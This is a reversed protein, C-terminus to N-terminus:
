TSILLTGPMTSDASHAMKSVSATRGSTYFEPKPRSPTKVGHPLIPSPTLLPITAASPKAVAVSDPHHLQLLNAAQRLLMAILTLVNFRATSPHVYARAKKLIDNVVKKPDNRNSPDQVALGSKEGGAFLDRPQEGPEYDEDGDDDDDDRAHGRGAHGYSGPLTGM